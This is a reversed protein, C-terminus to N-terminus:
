KTEAKKKWMRPYVGRPMIVRKTKFALGREAEIIEETAMLAQSISVLEGKLTFIAVLQGKKIDEHLTVIGPVALDAGHAISDVAGDTIVVKPLHSVGYEIPLIIERLPIEDSLERWIYIAESLKHMTVLTNDEKFPGTRIRRLEKMHAGVGLVDGIDHLLKRIYTGHQCHVRMLVFPYQIEIIDIEYIEKIRLARKVSSRLPPKQYIKGVFESIVERLKKENVEKHLQMVTVYEKSSLMLLGIIKTADGLAV